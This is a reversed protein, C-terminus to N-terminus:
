MYLHRYIVEVEEQEILKKLKEISEKISLKHKLFRIGSVLPYLSELFVIQRQYAPVLSNTGNYCNPTLPLQKFAEYNENNSLFEEFASRRIDENLESIMSFIVYISDSHANLKVQHIIWEEQRNKVLEDNGSYQLMEGFRSSIQWDYMIENPVNKLLYDYYKIYNESKWLINNRMYENQSQNNWFFESYEKLWIDDNKIIELLFEGTYDVIREISLIYFYINRLLEINDKFLELLEKPSYIQNHFLHEFYIKVMFNSYCRKEYIISCAIPYIKPECKLFKDLIRLCRQSSLTVEKDSDYKLFKLFEDLWKKNIVEQPLIDFFIFLWENKQPFEKSNIKSYLNKFNNLKNMSKLIQRPYISFNSGNSIYSNWFEELYEERLNTLFIEIGLNIHYLEFGDPIDKLIENMYYVFNYVESKSIRDAYDKIKKERLAEYEKYDLNNLLVDFRFLSYLNWLPGRQKDCWKKDIEINISKLNRQLMELTKIFCIRDCNLLDLIKYIDNIEADVIKSDVECSISRVYNEIYQLVFDKFENREALLLLIKWCYQRYERVGKSNELKMHYVRVANESESVLPHFSFNLVYKSWQLGLVMAIENEEEVSQLLLKGIRIQSYYDYRYSYIDIGYNDKLWGSGLIFNKSSKSCYEILLEVVYNINTSYNYGVLLNLLRDSMIYQNERFDVNLPNFQEYELEDIGEKALLFGEEPNFVHFDEVFKEYCDDNSIKLKEWVKLIEKRCYEKTVDSEFINLITNVSRIVGNRFYRYGIELVEGLSLIKRQFFVYYLMYNALCQDSLSAVQNLHIEVVELQALQHVKMMFVENSIGYCKLIGQLASLDNLIVTNIVALIGATLCLEKDEGLANDVHKRYYADYLQSVDNIVSLTEKELALKGAMYAIRPNGKSIKVIKEIYNLNKIGLNEDLFSIIEDDKLPEILTIYPNVYNKIESIVNGKAYDRVTVIIRAEYGLYGKTVYELIRSLEALENADDIFFLYKGRQETASVLDEYLSLNNNKVCLLKWGNNNSFEKIVELALRTKGVGAKGTVVVVNNELLANIIKEKESIRFQFNTRLPASMGNADCQIIFDDVSLIQNTDISLGLYTVLSPYFSYVQNAIEDVGYITLRVGQEECIDHLKKDDGANLNSSTHCCIIEEIGSTEIGTKLVDLCKEVDEKIKSYIGQDQMTYAVFVYKGNEKRFYTDPNGKTTKGTGAKMGYGHVNGCGKKSLFTDCFEQFEAPGLEIIRRKIDTISSM